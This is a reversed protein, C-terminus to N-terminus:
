DSLKVGPIKGAAITDYIEEANYKVRMLHNHLAEISEDRKLEEKSRPPRFALDPYDQKHVYQVGEFVDCSMVVGQSGVYMEVKCKLWTRGTLTYECEVGVPPLSTGDWVSQKLAAEYQERTIIATVEDEAITSKFPEMVKEKQGGRVWARKWRSLNAHESAGKIEGDYDQVIFYAGDPWGGRKPLERVLIDILKM